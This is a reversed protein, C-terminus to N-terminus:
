NSNLVAVVIVQRNPGSHTASATESGGAGILKYASSMTTTSGATQDVGETFGNNWTYSGSNGSIAAAVVASGDTATVSVTIPNPTSSSTSNYNSAAVPSTQSVNKFTAAAYMPDAPTSGGWAVSFTSGGAAAIGSENLYWLEARAYCGSSTTSTGDIRALSQGGYTVSTVGPDGSCNEYAVAFVLQRDVGAGATHTLGATWDSALEPRDANLVFAVMAQRNPGSHTASATESSGVAVKDATSMTMTSGSTQDTRETFSNNWTYSGSNGSVAASVVMADPVSSISRTIPNPTSGTNVTVASAAVPSTQNVYRYTVAAYAPSGPTGGSWTVTFTNNSAAQIDSENLYWAGLRNSCGSSTAVTQEIQTMARGGYSVATVTPDSCDEHGAVFVLLRDPGTGATHTLGTTWSNALEVAGAPPATYAVDVAVWDLSFDRFSSGAVNTVRLRFNSDSMETASWTRGWGDSAGGLTFSAEATGLTSTTKAATWSAGGNWSLEVCMFPSGFTGDVWADLRVTIGDVTAGSPLNIGYDYFDHRDRATSSCSSTTSTGSNEDYANGGGDACALGPNVEFGNNDGSSSTVPANGACGNYGTGSSAQASVVNSNGSEWNQYFARVTYYHTGAPPSDIYTTTTRPTVEAVFNFPGGADTGRYVRHGSAYTDATATWDLTISSGGSANLGTPPDLTDTTLANGGLGATDTFRALSHTSAEAGAFWLVGLLLALAFLRAM